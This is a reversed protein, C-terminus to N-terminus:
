GTIILGEVVLFRVFTKRRAFGLCQIREAVVTHEDLLKDFLRPMDFNLHEAIRLAVGYIQM